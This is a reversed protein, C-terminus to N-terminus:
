DRRAVSHLPQYGGSHQEISLKPCYADKYSAPSDKKGNRHKLSSPDLVWGSRVGKGDVWVSCRETTGSVKCQRIVGIDGTQIKRSNSDRAYEAESLGLEAITTEPLSTFMGVLDCVVVYDNTEFAAGARQQAQLQFALVNEDAARRLSGVCTVM